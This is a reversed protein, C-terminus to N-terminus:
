RTAVKIALQDVRSMPLMTQFYPEPILLYSCLCVISILDDNISLETHQSVADVVSGLLTRDERHGPHGAGGTTRDPVQTELTLHGTPWWSKGVLCTNKVKKMVFITTKPCSFSAIKFGESMTKRVHLRSTMLIHAQVCRTVVFKIPQSHLM